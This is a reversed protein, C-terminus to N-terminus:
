RKQSPQNPILRYRPRLKAVCIENTSFIVNGHGTMHIFPFSFIESSNAEVTAIKPTIKTNINQNCFQVLNPLATPNAYWDGGGSYKLVAIEQASSLNFLLLVIFLYRNM